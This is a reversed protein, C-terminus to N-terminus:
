EDGLYEKAMKTTAKVYRTFENDEKLTTIKSQKLVLINIGTLIAILLEILVKDKNM